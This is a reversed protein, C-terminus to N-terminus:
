VRRSMGRCWELQGYCDELCAGFLFVSLSVCLCVPLLLYGVVGSWSDMANESGLVVYFSLCYCVCVPLLLCACVPLLCRWLVSVVGRDFLLVEYICTILDGSCLGFLIRM